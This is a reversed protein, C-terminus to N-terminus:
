TDANPNTARIQNRFMCHVGSAFCKPEMRKRRGLGWIEVRGLLKGFRTERQPTYASKPNLPNLNENRINARYTQSRFMGMSHVFELGVFGIIRGGDQRHRSIRMAPELVEVTKILILKDHHGLCRIGLIYYSYLPIYPGRFAIIDGSYEQPERHPTGVLVRKYFAKSATTRYFGSGEVRFGLLSRLLM